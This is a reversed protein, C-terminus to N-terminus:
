LVLDTASLSTVGTLFISFEATTDADNSANLIHNVADFRVQGTANTNSFAATGIFSFVQNGILALNADIEALNIIDGKVFDTIVDGIFLASDLISTFVFRDNGGGGTLTDQGTGGIIIESTGRGTITDNGGGGYIVNYNKDTQALTDANTAVTFTEVRNSVTRDGGLFVTQDGPLALIRQWSGADVNDTITRYYDMSHNNPNGDYWLPTGAAYHDTINLTDNGSFRIVDGPRNKNGGVDWTMPVPDATIEIQIIRGDDNFSKRWLNSNTYAPAAFTIAQYLPNIIHNPAEMYNIAMAGGLSHGTVYVHNIGNSATSAYNNLATILPAFLNYHDMMSKSSGDGAAGWQDVDPRIGNNPDNQNIVGSDPTLLTVNDGGRNDNTGRFSLVIADGCRAVFAAANECTYYGGAMGNVTQLTIQYDYHDPDPTTIINNADTTPTFVDNTHNTCTFIGNVQTGLNLPQWGQSLVDQYATDANDSLDNYASNEWSQLAYAAKSFDALVRIMGANEGRIAQKEDATLQSKFIEIASTHTTKDAFQLAEVGTLTDVGDNGNNLNIDTIKISGGLYEIKYDSYVGSYVATDIGNGGYLQDDGLGGSLTDNSDYGLLANAADNGTIVNALGNGFGKIADTGTLTLNEVNATLKYFARSSQVTDIGQEQGALEIITDLDGNIVYTDNGAGGILTDVGAYGTLTNAASNGTIINNLSNGLGNITDTGTLTLNEVNETLRYTVLSKVTDIGASASEIVTDASSDIIYTDNGNGGYLTDDGLGGDLTDKGDYGLLMNAASNGTIVNALGNGAGTLTGTGTLTLNEVNATLKYYTLSSKVTDTGQDAAESVIDFTDNIYYVDDDTGGKLTDAGVGGTLIDKGGLGYIFNDLNNGNLIDAGAGGVIKINAGSRVSYKYVGALGTNGLTTELALMANQNGSQSLELWSVGDGASYGAHAIQGGLGDMGSSASGTTWNIAEYRFEITFDGSGIGTLQMQFANLKNTGYSFYGVDDWTITLRHATIDTDYWVLNSGTSTGGPTRTVSGSRTDVDAFFAAIMPYQSTQLGFPTYARLGGGGFTVNGNNNISLTTYNTGFFNLGQTGFISTIDVGPVYSDDNGSLHNEGFGAVGGLGNLLKAM